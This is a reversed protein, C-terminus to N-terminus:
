PTVQVKLTLAQREIHETDRYPEVTLTYFDGVRYVRFTTNHTRGGRM